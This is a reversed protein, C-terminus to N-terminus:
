SGTKTRKCFIKLYQDLISINKSLNKQNVKLNEKEQETMSEALKALSQQYYKMTDIFKLQDRINAFNIQLLNAGRVLLNTTKWAGFRLGKLFFFFHFGFLNHAIISIANKNEKVKRNCFGHAYGLIEGTIHSHYLNPKANFLINKVNTLFNSSIPVRRIQDNSPIKMINLYVFSNTKEITKIQSNKFFLIKQEGISEYVNEFSMFQGNLYETLFIKFLNIISM